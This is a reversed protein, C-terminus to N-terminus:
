WKGAVWKSCTDHENMLRGCYVSEHNRCYGWDAPEPTQTSRWYKMCGGCQEDHYHDREDNQNVTRGCRDCWIVTLRGTPHIRHAM